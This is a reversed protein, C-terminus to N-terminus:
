AIALWYCFIASGGTNKIKFSSSTPAEPVVPLNALTAFPTLQIVSPVAGLGHNVALTAGAGIEGSISFATRHARGDVSKLSGFAINGGQVPFQLSLFDLNEQIGTLIEELRQQSAEQGPALRVDKFPLDLAM